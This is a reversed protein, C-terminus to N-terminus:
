KQFYWMNNKKMIKRSSNNKMESRLKQTNTNGKRMHRSLPPQPSPKRDRVYTPPVCVSVCMQRRRRLVSVRRQNPGTVLTVRVARPQQEIGAGVLIGLVLHTDQDEAVKYM